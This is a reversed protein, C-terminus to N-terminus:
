DIGSKGMYRNMFWKTLRVYERRNGFYSMGHGAGPVTLIYKEGSCHEYLERSMSCPVYRDDEGHFFLIPVCSHKVGELPSAEKLRFHGFLAAAMSVIGYASGPIGMDAIVKRIIAEPSTYGCDAVIGAVNDPLELEAAMLVTAAGMSVGYLFIRTEGGFRQSAYRIWDLCDYRERIGFTITKGQSKGQARQDVLLFNCNLERCIRIGGEFDREAMPSKYGHFMITLPGHDQVHYYKGFLKLGDRSQICVPEYPLALAEELFQMIEQRYPRYQGTDPMIEKAKPRPIPSYFVRRYAYYLVAIFFVCLLGAAAIIIMIM